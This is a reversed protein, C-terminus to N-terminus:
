ASAANMVATMASGKASIVAVVYKYLLKSTCASKILLSVDKTYKNWTGSEYQFTTSTFGYECAVATAELILRSRREIVATVMMIPRMGMPSTECKIKVRGM